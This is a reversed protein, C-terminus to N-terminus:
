AKAARLQKRLSKYIDLPIRLAKLLGLAGAERRSDLTIGPAHITYRGAILEALLAERTLAQVDLHLAVPYYGGRRHLDLGGCALLEQNVLRARQLYEFAQPRPLFKGDYAVNWVEAAHVRRVLEADVRWKFRVPHALVAFGGVARIADTVRLPDRFDLDEACGAGVIHILGPCSYELGPIVLFSDDSLQAARERLAAIKAADMDEAHETVFMFHFGRARLLSAVDELPMKGDHSLDSHIHLAGKVRM